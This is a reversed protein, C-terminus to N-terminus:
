EHVLLDYDDVDSVGSISVGEDRGLRATFVFTSQKRRNGM